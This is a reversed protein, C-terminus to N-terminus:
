QQNELRRVALKPQPQHFSIPYPPTPPAPKYNPALVERGVYKCGYPDLVGYKTKLFKQFRDWVNDPIALIVGWQAYVSTPKDQKSSTLSAFLEADRWFGPYAFGTHLLGHEEVDDFADAAGEEFGVFNEDTPDVYHRSTPDNYSGDMQREIWWLQDFVRSQRELHPALTKPSVLARQAKWFQELTQSDAKAAEVQKENNVRKRKERQRAADKCKKCEDMSLGHKCSEMPEVGFDNEHEM